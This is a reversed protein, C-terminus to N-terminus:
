DATFARHIAHLAAIRAEFLRTLCPEDDNCRHRSLLWATQAQSFAAPAPITRPLSRHREAYLERDAQYHAALTGALTALPVSRCIARADRSVAHACDVVATRPAAAQL